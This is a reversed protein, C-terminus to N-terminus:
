EEEEGEDDLGERIAQIIKPHLKGELDKLAALSKERYWKRGAVRIRAAELHAQMLEEHKDM